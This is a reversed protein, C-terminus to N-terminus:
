RSITIDGKYLRSSGDGLEAELYYVFVAPNLLKGKSRGDWGYAPDNIPFNSAEFLLAGWRDFIRLLKINTIKKPDGYVYWIDNIGDLDPSFVNPIYLNFNKEVSVKVKDSATCGELDTITLTYSLGNIGSVFPNLCDSCSLGTAPSWSISGIQSEPISLIPFLQGSEGFEITVLEPLEVKIDEPQPLIVNEDYTCGNIDKVTLSYNGSTLQSFDPNTQFQSGNISYLYPGVGGTTSQIIISGTNKCGPTVIQAIIDAPVNTNQLVMVTDTAICGNLDDTVILVYNGQMAVTPSLTNASPLAQGNFNWIYSYNGAPFSVNGSLVVNNLDCTLLKDQGASIQPIIKNEQVSVSQLKECGNLNNKVLLQYLGIKDAIATSLNTPGIFNGNITSWNYSWNPNNSVAELNTSLIKCTLKEPVLISAVPSITDIVVNIQDFNTCGTLPDNVTITYIGPQNIEPTLTNAGSLVPQNNSTWTIDLTGSNYVVSAKLLITSHNCNLVTDKGADVEPIEGNSKVTIFDEDTCGNQINTTILKYVGAKNVTPILASQGSVISGNATSWTFSYQGPSSNNTASLQIVPNTCNVEADPIVLVDPKTKDEFIEVDMQSTCGNKTNTVLLTYIGPKDIIPNISNQGSIINGSITSWNYNFIPGSSSGGGDLNLIPNNCTITNSLGANAIPVQTDKAVIVTDSAICGNLQNIIKLIYTGQQDTKTNLSDVPGIINGNIATWSIGYDIGNSSGSGNLDIISKLCSITDPLNITAIPLNVDSAIMVTDIQSCGNKKDLVTMIYLGPKNILPMLTNGGSLINGNITTWNIDSLTDPINSIANISLTPILCSLTDQLGADIIPKIFDDTIIHTSTTKCGTTKNSITLNYIGSSNIEVQLSDTKSIFNGNITSWKFDFESGTDSLSGDLWANTTYCNLTKIGSIISKPLSADVSILVTDTSICLNNKDQVQLIYTGASKVVPTLTDTKSAFSGNLTTWNLNYNAPSTVSGMLTLLTDSCSLKSDLGANIVPNTKDEIVVVSATKSCIIKGDNYTVKLDYKGPKNVIIDWQTPDTLIKGGITTWLYSINSGFSSKDGSLTVTSGGCGLFLPPDIEAEIDIVVLDLTVISDCGKWTKLNIDYSGENQFTQNAITYTQGSCITADVKTTKKPLVKVNVKDEYRCVEQLSIDDIAFDNGFGVGSVESICMSVNSTAVPTFCISVKQWLCMDPDPTYTGVPIGNCTILLNAPSVPYMNTVWFEFLYDTNPQLTVNQCWIDTNPTTSGDVLLMNGSGTTHDGCAGFGSNFSQPNNTVTIKGPGFSGPVADYIYGTTFGTNGNSFNGNIIPVFTNSKCKTTLTFTKDVSVTADPKLTFLDSLEPEDKWNFSIFDGTVSGNLKVTGGPECIEIDKGADVTCNCTPLISQADSYSLCINAWTFVSVFTYFFNRKM